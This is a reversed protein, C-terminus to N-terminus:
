AALPHVSTPRLPTYVRSGCVELSHACCDEIATYQGGLIAENGCFRRGAFLMDSYLAAPNRINVTQKRFARSKAGNEPSEASVRWQVSLVPCSPDTGVNM